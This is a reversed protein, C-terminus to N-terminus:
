GSGCTGGSCRSTASARQAGRRHGGRQVAGHGPRPVLEGAGRRHLGAPVRGAGTAARRPDADAWPRGDPTARGGSEFEDVLARDSPRRRCRTTGPRSCSPFIWQTWRYFEPDTTAVSRRQDHAFGLRRLQRASGAINAETTTRPHTGTQVAYQEAPLGFSDLGARAARQAACGSSGPTPSTATFPSRAWVARGHIPRLAMWRSPRRAGPGHVHSELLPWGPEDVPALVRSARWATATDSAPTAPLTTGSRPTRDRQGAVEGRDCRGPGLGEVSSCARSVGTSASPSATSGDHVDRLAGTRAEVVGDRCVGRPAGGRAELHGGLEAPGLRRGSRSLQADRGALRPGPSAVRAWGPPRAPASTARACRRPAARPGGPGLNCAPIGLQAFRAVDTWGLKAAVELGHHHVLRHLVPHDLGPRAGEAVDVVTVADGEALVPTLLAQLEALAEAGSRDPAFRRNLTVSALDPVVNGAVGGSVAVAQLAERYECGDIVPRREEFGDVARLVAGLRHIANRWGCGPGHPGAERM